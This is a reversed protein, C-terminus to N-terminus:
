LFQTLAKLPLEQFVIIFLKRMFKKKLFKHGGNSTRWFYRLSKKKKYFPNKKQLFIERYEKLFELLYKVELEEKFIKPFIVKAEPVIWIHRRLFKSAFKMLWKKGSRKIEDISHKRSHFPTIEGRIRKSIGGLTRKRGEYFGGAIGDSFWFRLIEACMEAFNRSLNKLPYRWFSRRPNRQFNRWPGSFKGHIRDSIEASIMM